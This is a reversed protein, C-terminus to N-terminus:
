ASWLGVRRAVHIGQELFGKLKKEGLEPERVVASILIATALTKGSVFPPPAVPDVGPPAISGGSFFTALAVCGAPTALDASEGAEMAARRNQDTPERLWKEVASLAAVAEPPASEGATTRACMWAWWIAERAPLLASLVRVADTVHGDEILQSIYADPQHDPEVRARAEESAGAARTLETLTLGPFPTTKSRTEM